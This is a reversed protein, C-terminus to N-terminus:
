LDIQYEALGRNIKNPKKTYVLDIIHMYKDLYIHTKQYLKIKKYYFFDGVPQSSYYNKNKSVDM